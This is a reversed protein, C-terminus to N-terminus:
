EEKETTVAHTHQQFVRFYFWQSRYQNNCGAGDQKDEPRLVTVANLKNGAVCAHYKSETAEKNAESEVFEARGQRCEDALWQACQAFYTIRDVHKVGNHM